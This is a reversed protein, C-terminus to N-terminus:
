AGPLTTPIPAPIAVRYREAWSELNEWVANEVHVGHERAHRRCQEWPGPLLTGTPEPQARLWEAVREHYTALPELAAVAVALVFWGHEPLTAPAWPVCSAPFAAPAGRGLTSDCVVPLGEDSPLALAWTGTHGVVAGVYPGVALDAAIAAVPGSPGVHVVRVLGIGAERAKEAALEAARALLLPPIGNQGDFVATGTMEGTVRGEAGPDVVRTEIRELWGALAALGFASHAAADHFLLHAALASGRAPAVGAATLLAGAFRRLDDLRYRSEGM